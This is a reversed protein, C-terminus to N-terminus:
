NTPNGRSKQLWERVEKPTPDYGDYFEVQLDPGVNRVNQLRIKGEIDISYVCIRQTEPDVITVKRYPQGSRADVITTFDVLWRPPVLPVNPVHVTTMGNGREDLTGPTSPTLGPTPGQPVQRPPAEQWAQAANWLISSCFGLTLSACVVFLFRLCRGRRNEVRRDLGQLM